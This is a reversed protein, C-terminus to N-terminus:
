KRDLKPIGLAIKELLRVLETREQPELQNVVRELREFHGPAVAILRAQGEETLKVTRHRRDFDEVTRAILGDRELNDLLGTVTAKRVGLETALDTPSIGGRHWELSALIRYRGLSLGHSEFFAETRELVLSGVGTVRVAVLVALPDAALDYQAIQAEVAQLSPTIIAQSDSLVDDM